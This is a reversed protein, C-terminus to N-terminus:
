EESLQILYLELGLAGNIALALKKGDPSIAPQQIELSDYTIRELHTGNEWISYLEGGNEDRDSVFYLKLGNPHWCINQANLSDLRHSEEGYWNIFPISAREFPTESQVFMLHKGDPAVQPDMCRSKSFTLQNLNDYIFDYSYIQWETSTKDFGSFYVQRASSAFSAERCRIMRKFLRRIKRDTLQYSFLTEIELSDSDFVVSKGDPFWVPHQYNFQGSVLPFVCEQNLDYCYIDWTGNRNTQFAIKTGDPSWAPCNDDGQEFTIQKATALDVEQGCLTATLCLFFLVNGIQRIM